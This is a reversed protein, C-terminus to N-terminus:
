KAVGTVGADKAFIGLLGIIVATVIDKVDVGSQLMPVAIQVAAGFLGIITTKWNKM